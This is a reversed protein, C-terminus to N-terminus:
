LGDGKRLGGCPALVVGSAIADENSAARTHYLIRAASVGPTAPDSRVLTGPAANIKLGKTAYFATTPLARAADLERGVERSPAFRNTGGALLHQAPLVAAFFGLALLASTTLLVCGFDLALTKSM